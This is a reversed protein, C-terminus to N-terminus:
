SIIGAAGGSLLRPPKRDEPDPGTQCELDRTIDHLHYKTQLVIGHLKEKEGQEGGADHGRVLDGLVQGHRVDGQILIHFEDGAKQPQGVDLIGAGGEGGELPHLPEERHDEQDEGGGNEVFVEFLGHGEGFELAPADRGDVAAAQAVHDVPEAVAIHHVHDLGLEHIEGNEIHGVAEDGAAADGHQDGQDEEILFEPLFLFFLSYHIIFSSHHIISTDAAGVILILADWRSIEM